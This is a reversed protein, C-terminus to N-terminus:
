INYNYYYNSVNWTVKLVWIFLLYFAYISAINLHLIVSNYVIHTM